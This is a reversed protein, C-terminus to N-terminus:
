AGQKAKRRSKKSRKIGGKEPKWYHLEVATATAVFISSYTGIIVGIIMGFAFGKLTEGGLFFLVVVTFLVTLATVVTRSLTDNISTNVMEEYDMSSRKQEYERVRDFVIITDNITYGIITLFCAIMTSNIQMSFPSIEHFIAFVGVVIILDHVLGLTAGVSMRWNRFRALIYLFIAILAFIVAKIAGARLDRAFRPGVTDTRQVTVSNNPISQQLTSIITSQVAKLSGSADTRILIQGPGGFRKVLPEGDLPGTLENRIQTVNAKKQFKLVFEKGGKFEIGFQFGIVIIGIIAIAIATGSCILSINFKGVFDYDPNEFWRM